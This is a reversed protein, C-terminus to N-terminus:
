SVVQVPLRSRAIFLGLTTLAYAGTLSFGQYSEIRESGVSPQDDM